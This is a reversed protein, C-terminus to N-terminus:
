GDVADRPELCCVHWEWGRTQKALWNRNDAFDPNLWRGIAVIGVYRAGAAKLAASASQAHAGTTWTDDVVLVSRDRLSRIAMFRDAAQDRQAIDQRNLVLLDQYRADAWVRDRWGARSTSSRVTRRRPPLSNM